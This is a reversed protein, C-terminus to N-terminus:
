MGGRFGNLKSLVSAYGSGASPSLASFAGQTGGQLYPQTTEGLATQSYNFLGQAANQKLNARQAALNTSLKRGEQALQQTVAGSYKNMGGGANLRELINPVTEQQFQDMAPREFDAFADPDDALIKQYYAIADKNGAKVGELLEAYAQQQEPTYRQREKLETPQDKGFGLLGFLGGLGAGVGAGIPGFPTGLGAGTAAGTFANSFDAM